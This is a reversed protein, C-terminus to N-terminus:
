MAATDPGDGDARVRKGARADPAAMADWTRRASGLANRTRRALELADMEPDQGQWGHEEANTFTSTDAGGGGVADEDKVTACSASREGGGSGEGSGVADLIGAPCRTQVAHNAAFVQALRAVHEQLARTLQLLRKRAPHTEETDDTVLPRLPPFLSAPDREDGDDLARSRRLSRRPAASAGAQQAEAHLIKDLRVDAEHLTDFADVALLKLAHVTETLAVCRREVVALQQDAVSPAKAASGQPPFAASAIRIDPVLAKANAMAISAVRERLRKTQRETSSKHQLAMAKVQQLQKQTRALLARTSRHAAQEEALAASTHELQVERSRAKFERTATKGEVRKEDRRTRELQRELERNKALLGDRIQTEEDREMLLAGLVHVLAKRDRDGLGDISLPSKHYGRAHLQTRIEEFALPEM